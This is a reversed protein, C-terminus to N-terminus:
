YQVINHFQCKILGAFVVILGALVAILYACYYAFILCLFLGDVEKLHQPIDKYEVNKEVNVNHQYELPLKGHVVIGNNFCSNNFM